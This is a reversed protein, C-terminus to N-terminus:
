VKNENLLVQRWRGVGALRWRHGIVSPGTVSHRTSKIPGIARKQTNKREKSSVNGPRNKQDRKSMRQETGCKHGTHASFQVHM